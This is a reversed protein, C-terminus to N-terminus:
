RKSFECFMYQELTSDVKMGQWRGIIYMRSLDTNTKYWYTINTGQNEFGLETHDDFIEGFHPSYNRSELDKKIDLPTSNAYPDDNYFFGWFGNVLFDSGNNEFLMVGYHQDDANYLPNLHFCAGSYASLKQLAFDANGTKYQNSIDQMKSTCENEDCFTSPDFFNDAFASISFLSLTLLILLKM